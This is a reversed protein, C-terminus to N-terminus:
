REKASNYNLPIQSSVGAGKKSLFLPPSNVIIGTETVRNVM